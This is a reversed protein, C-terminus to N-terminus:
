ERFEGEFIFENIPKRDTVKEAKQLGEPLDQLNGPKGIAFMMNVEYDDSVKLETKAKDAFFGGMGHVVLGMNSGQLALNEFASGTSFMHTPHPSNNRTFTKKSIACVLVAADKCWTKNGDMLLNFMKEWQPSERKAYIFRWPQENFSSSAWRAAEFLTMLEEESISEGSMARPSWRDLFIKNIPYDSKRSESGKKYEVM